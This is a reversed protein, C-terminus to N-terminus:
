PLLMERIPREAPKRWPFREFGLLCCGLAHVAPLVQKDGAKVAKLQEELVTGGEQKLMELKVMKWISNVIDSTDSYPVEVFRPKPEIMDSRLIQLKFRRALEDEQQWYFTDAFYGQWVKNFWSSLGPYRLVNNEGVINDVTVWEMQEFVYVRGTKVDQGAMLIYGNMDIQGKHEYRIPWCVGGRMYFEMCDHEDFYLISTRRHTDYHRQIPKIM